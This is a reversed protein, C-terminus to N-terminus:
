VVAYEFSDWYFQQWASWWFFHSLYVLFDKVAVFNIAPAGGVEFQADGMASRM